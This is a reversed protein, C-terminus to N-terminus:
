MRNMRHEFERRNILGTLSDHTAQYSLKQEMDRELTIDRLFATFVPEAGLKERTITLEVPFSHGNAHLASVEIRAGLITNAAGSLQRKFGARHAERKDPPIILQAMDQGLVLDRKYGFTKEAAPNFELIRGESNVTIICDLATRLIAAKCAESDSLADIIEFRAKQQASLRRHGILLGLLGLLWLTGLAAGEQKIQLWEQEYHHTMPVAVGVGGGNGGLRWGQNPHCQLCCETVKLPRMLRLFSKGDIETFEFAEEDGQEFRRLAKQEWPDPANNPRLPDFSTVRGATGYLERYDEDIQRVMTAPNILTLRTGRPTTLDREPMHSLYPDPQTRETVPVYIRGHDTAWLRFANDKFFHARAEATATDRTTRQRETYEWIGITFFALTWLVGLTLVYHSLSRQAINDDLSPM